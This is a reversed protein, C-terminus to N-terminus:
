LGLHYFYFIIKLGHLDFFFTLLPGFHGLVSTGFCADRAMIIWSSAVPSVLPGALGTVVVTPSHHSRWGRNTNERKRSNPKRRNQANQKRKASIFAQKNEAMSVNWEDMVSRM